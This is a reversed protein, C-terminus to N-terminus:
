RGRRRLEKSRERWQRRQERAMERAREREQKARVRAEVRRQMRHESRVRERETAARSSRGSATELAGHVAKFWRAAGRIAGDQDSRFVTALIPLLLGGMIWFPVSLLFIGFSLLLALPFPLAVSIAEIAGPTVKAVAESGPEPTPAADTQPSPAKEPQPETAVRVRPTPAPAAQVDIRPAYSGLAARVSRPRHDPDPELMRELVAILASSASVESRVDVRLGRHALQEPERGTMLAVVTAGLGYVDTQPLAQGHLQEPAMYGFTGAVTSGGGARLMDRVAGFDVLAITGDPRRILNHPKIDRHIVPPQLGHLMDLIAGVEHLVRWVEGETTRVGRARREQLSEGVVREMVLYFAGDEEFQELYRPIAPHQISRLVSCEREFLEVKKWDTAVRLDFRKLAVETDREQDHALYTHGQGGAGLERVIRYRQHVLATGLSPEQELVEPEADEREQASPKPSEAM